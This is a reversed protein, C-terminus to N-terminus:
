WSGSIAVTGDAGKVQITHPGPGTSEVVTTGEPGSVRVYSYNPLRGLLMLVLIALAVVELTRRTRKTM